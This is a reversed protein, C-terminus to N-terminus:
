YLSHNIQRSQTELNVVPEEGSDPELDRSHKLDFNDLLEVMDQAMMKVNELMDRMAEAEGCDSDRIIRLPEESSASDESSISPIM